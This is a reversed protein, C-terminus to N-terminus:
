ENIEYHDCFTDLYQCESEPADKAKEIAEEKTDAEIEVRYSRIEQFDVIFKKM